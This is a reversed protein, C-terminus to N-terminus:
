GSSSIERHQEFGERTDMSALREKPVSAGMWVRVEARFARETDTFVLDMTM